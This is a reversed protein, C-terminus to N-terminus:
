NIIPPAFSACPIRVCLYLSLLPLPSCSLLAAPLLDSHQQRRGGGGMDSSLKMSFSPPCVCVHALAVAAHQTRPRRVKMMMRDMYTTEVNAVRVGGRTHM